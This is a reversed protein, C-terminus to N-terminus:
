RTFEIQRKEPIKGTPFIITFTTGKGEVSDVKINGGHERIIKYVITLGLGTGTDKTTFYPEFIKDVTDKDMGHGSDTVTIEITDDKECGGLEITDGPQSAELANKIINLFAPKIYRTDAFIPPLNNPVEFIVNIGQKEAEYKIFNTLEQLMNYLDVEESTLEVPRVTFLFDKIVMNLREIEEHVVNLLSRINEAEPKNVKELVREILQIHIDISGLPNKIEHAVGAALTTLAALSEARRLKVQEMKERTIDLLMIIDGFIKGNNQLPIINVRLIKVNPYNVKIEEDVVRIDKNLKEKIYIELDDFRIIDYLCRDIVNPERIALIQLASRNIYNVVRAEDVVIVGEMMSCFITNFFERDKGLQRVFDKLNEMNMYDLKDLVKNIFNGSLM